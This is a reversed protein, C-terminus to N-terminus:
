QTIVHSYQPHTILSYIRQISYYCITIGVAFIFREVLAIPMISIWQTHTLTNATYLTIVSGLAHTIFTSTLAQFFVRSKKQVLLVLPILWLLAYPAAQMGVPHAIFLTACVLITFILFIKKYTSFAQTPNSFAVAGFFSPIHYLLIFLGLHPLTLATVISRVFFFLSAGLFGSCSGILPTICHSLSFFATHSGLIMSLKGFKLLERALLFLTTAGFCPVLNKVIQKM